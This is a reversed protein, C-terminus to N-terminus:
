MTMQHLYHPNCYQYKFTSFPTKFCFFMKVYQIKLKIDYQDGVKQLLYCM